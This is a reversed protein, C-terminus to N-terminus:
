KNSLKSNIIKKIKNKALYKCTKLAIKMKTKNKNVSFM